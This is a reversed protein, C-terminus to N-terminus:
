FLISILYTLSVIGILIVVLIGNILVKKKNFKPNERVLKRLNYIIQFLCFTGFVFAFAYCLFAIKKFMPIHPDVSCGLISGCYYDFPSPSFLRGLILFCLGGFAYGAWTFPIRLIREIHKKINM